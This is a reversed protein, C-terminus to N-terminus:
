KINNMQERFDKYVPRGKPSVLKDIMKLANVEREDVEVKDGNINTCDTYMDMLANYPTMASSSGSEQVKEEYDIIREVLDVAFNSDKRPDIRQAMDMVTSGLPSPKGKNNVLPDGYYSFKGNTYEILESLWSTMEKIDNNERVEDVRRINDADKMYKVARAFSGVFMAATTMTEYDVGRDGMLKYEGGELKDKIERKNGEENFVGYVLKALSVASERDKEIDEEPVNIGQRGQYIDTIFKSGERWRMAALEQPSSTSNTDINVSRFGLLFSNTVGDRIDDFHTDFYSGKEYFKWKKRTGTGEDAGNNQLGDATSFDGAGTFDGALEEASMGFRSSVDEGISFAEDFEGNMSQSKGELRRNLKKEMVDRLFTDALKTYNKLFRKDEDSFKKAGIVQIAGVVDDGPQPYLTFAAGHLRKMGEKTPLYMEFSPEFSTEARNFDIAIQPYKIRKKEFFDKGQDPLEKFGGNQRHLETGGYIDQPVLSPNPIFAAYYAELEKGLYSIIESIAMDETFETEKGNIERKGMHLDDNLDDIYFALDAIRSNLRAKNKAEDRQYIAEKLRSSPALKDGNYIVGKVQGSPDDISVAKGGTVDLTDIRFELDQKNNPDAM